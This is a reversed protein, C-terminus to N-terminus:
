EQALGMFTNQQSSFFIALAHAAGIATTGTQPYNDVYLHM